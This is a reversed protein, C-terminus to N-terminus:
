YGTNQKLLPNIDIQQQPIPFLLDRESITKGTAKMVTLARGTRVLDFWRHGEFALEVRREQELALRADAQSLGTRETLGARTRIQNLYPLAQNTQGQENLAEAYMLLVDAYRTVIWNGDGDYATALPTIFTKKVYPDNYIVKGDTWTESLSVPKRLDGPEYAAIINQTPRNYGQGSGQGTVYVAGRKPSFNTAYNSGEGQSSAKYAVEFISEKNQANADLFVSAYSPLLSYTGADIVSKLVQAAQAYQKHTLYVKGLLSGAAGKTTRGISSGTYSVPLKTGADTLDSVIQTYIDAISSRNVQYAESGSIATLVLPVDGYVRVLNFYALGRLFKAEGILQDKQSADTFNVSPIRSLITNCQNILRYHANWADSIFSNTSLLTFTDFDGYVQTTGAYDEQETNDSREESFLFWNGYMGGTQLTSYAGLIATQFDAPTQYFKDVNASSIPSLTLFDDQCASSALVLILLLSSSFRKM